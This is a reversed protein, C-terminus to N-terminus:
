RVWTRDYDVCTLLQSVSQRGKPISTVVKNSISHISGQQHFWIDLCHQHQFSTSTSSAYLLKCWCNAVATVAALASSLSNVRLSPILYSLLTSTTIFNLHLQWCSQVATLAPLLKYCSDFSPLAQLLRWLQRSSDFSYVAQLLQWHQRCSTVAAM